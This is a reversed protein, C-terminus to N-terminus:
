TATGGVDGAAAKGDGGSGRRRRNCCRSCCCRKWPCCCCMMAREVMETCTPEPQQGRRSRWACWLPLHFPAVVMSCLLWSGPLVIMVHVLWTWVCALGCSCTLSEEAPVAGGGHGQQGDRDQGAASRQERPQAKAQQQLFARVRVWANRRIDRYFLPFDYAHLEGGAQFTMDPIYGWGGAPAPDSVFLMGEKSCAASVLQEDFGTLFLHGTVPMAGMALSRPAVATDNRWSLPNVCAARRAGPPLKDLWHSADAGEVLTNWSVFCRTEDASGCVPLPLEGEAAITNGPLYAAVLRELVGPHRTAIHALLRKAHMTGQSHSALIVPRGANQPLFIREFADRVDSFGLDMARQLPDTAASRNKQWTNWLDDTGQASQSVQRYRPAFIRAVGNFASAQQTLQGAGTLLNAQLDDIPASWRSSMFSTPHVYFVDVPATAERAEGCEAPVVGAGNWSGVPPLADWSSDLGYDPAAPTADSLRSQMFAMTIAAVLLLYAAAFLRPRLSRGTQATVPHAPKLLAAAAPHADHGDGGIPGSAASALLREAQEPAAAAPSAVPNATAAALAM